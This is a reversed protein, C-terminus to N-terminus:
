TKSSQINGKLYKVNKFMSYCTNFMSHCKNFISYCTNFMSHCTNFMSYCKNFMSHCKNFMSYCTNFMSYCTSFMSHCKNFISYCTNFMSHCKNFIAVNPKGYGPRFEKESIKDSFTNYNKRKWYYNHEVHMIQSRHDCDSVFPVLNHSMTTLVSMPM